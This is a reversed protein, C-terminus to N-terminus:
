LKILEMILIDPLQSFLAYQDPFIDRAAEPPKPELIRRITFGTETVVRSFGEFSRYYYPIPQTMSRPKFYGKKPSFYGIFPPTYRETLCNLPHAVSFVFIGGPKLSRNVQGFAKDLDMIQDLVLNALCIDFPTAFDLDYISGQLITVDALAPNQKALDVLESNLEVGVVEAGLALFHKLDQGFGCGIDLLRKGAVDQLLGYIAPNAIHDSHITGQASRVAHYKKATLGYVADIEREDDQM